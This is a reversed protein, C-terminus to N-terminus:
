FPRRHAPPHRLPPGPRPSGTGPAGVAPLPPVPPAPRQRYRRVLAAALAFTMLLIIGPLVEPVFRRVWWMLRSAVRARYIFVPTVILLPLVAVWAAARWRRLAVVALGIGALPFAGVSLFWSLRRMNEEDYRPLVQTGALYTNAGFLRRRLVGLVMLGAVVACLGFGVWFQKRNNALWRPIGQSIAPISRAGFALVALLVVGGLVLK